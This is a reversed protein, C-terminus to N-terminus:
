YPVTNGQSDTKILWVASNGNGFSSTSGLIIYGGDLTQQGFLGTDGESGGFTKNWMENGQSDTKILWVDNKGNGFSSTTGTIIYGGDTTQLISNGGDNNSGGFTKNWMENGQSDTKILWVDKEGNGFSETFGCTIYGSDITQQVSYCVDNSSGGFTKNWMENGQSDIKILWVDDEGNGFSSTIGGIIYGGDSTQQVSMGGDEGSEDFFYDWIKNGESDTKILWGGFGGIAGMSFGTIIFGGDTTQQISQGVDTTIKDHVILSSFSNVWEINGQSDIKIFLVGIGFSGTIIYGGDSTQQVFEGVEYSGMDYNNNWIKNGKSDTKILWIDFIVNGSTQGVIIYGGDETQQIAKGFGGDITTVFLNSSNGVNVNSISQLGWIDNVVLQYYQTVDSTINTVVYWTNNIDETEYILIKNSMDGLESEYLQYSQFDNDGNKEWNIIFSDNEYVIQTINSTTPPLDIENTMGGGIQSVQGLVDEVEIWFWNEHTPNFITSTYSTTNIDTFTDVVTKSGSETESHYLKYHKLDADTSKNWEITMEYLVYSVDIVDVSNPVPDLSSSFVQGKMELGVTDTVTIRYYNYHLPNGESDFYSTDNVDMTTHIITYDNMSSEVSKELQYSEFDNDTSKNWTITFGGNDYELSSIKVMTPYYSRNDVKLMIPQSETYNGSNDYSIVKIIYEGDELETTNWLYQFPSDNLTLVLEDNIYFEVKKIGDNDNTSVKITVIEGVTQGSYHSSIIVTPPTTDVDECTYLLLILPITLLHLYRLKKM